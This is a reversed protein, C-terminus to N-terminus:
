EINGSSKLFDLVEQVTETPIEEHPVHGAQPFV